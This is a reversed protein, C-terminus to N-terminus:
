SFIGLNYKAAILEGKKTILQSQLGNTGAISAESFISSWQQNGNEDILSVYSGGYMIANAYDMLNNIKWQTAMDTQDAAKILAAKAAELAAQQTLLEAEAKAKATEIETELTAQAKQLELDKISNQIEQWKAEANKIAAEAEAVIKENQAQVDKYNALATLQKAKADRIATVSASENDDVCSTLTTSGLALACILVSVAIFKKKM